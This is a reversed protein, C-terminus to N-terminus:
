DSKMKVCPVIHLDCGASFVISGADLTTINRILVAGKGQLDLEQCGCEKGSNVEFTVIHSQWALVCPTIVVGDYVMTAKHLCHIGFHHNSKALVHM